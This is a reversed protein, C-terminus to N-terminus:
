LLLGWTKTPRTAANKLLRFLRYTHASSSYACGDPRTRSESRFDPFREQGAACRSEFLQERFQIL